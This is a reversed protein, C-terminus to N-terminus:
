PAQGAAKSKETQSAATPAGASVPASLPDRWTLNLLVVSRPKADYGNSIPVEANKSEHRSLHKNRRRNSCLCRIGLALHQPNARPPVQHTPQAIGLRRHKWIMKTEVGVPILPTIWILGWVEVPQTPTAQLEILGSDPGNTSLDNLTGVIV